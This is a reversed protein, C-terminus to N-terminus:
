TRDMVRPRDQLVYAFMSYTVMMVRGDETRADGGERLVPNVLM